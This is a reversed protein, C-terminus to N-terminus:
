KLIEQKDNVLELMEKLAESTGIIGEEDGLYQKIKIIHEFCSAADQYRQLHKYAEALNGLARISELKDNIKQACDLQRKLQSIAESYQQTLILVYALNGLAETEVKLIRYLSALEMSKTFAEKAPELKKQALYVLGLNNLSKAEQAHNQLSQALKMSQLHRKLSEDLLVQDYYWIGLLNEIVCILVADQIENALSHAQLWYEKAKEKQKRGFALRGKFRLTHFILHTDKALNSWKELRLTSADIDKWAGIMWQIELSNLLVEARQAYADEPLIDLLTQYLKLALTNDYARQAEAAAKQLWPIAEQHKSAKLYHMALSHSFEDLRGPFVSQIAEAVMQHLLKRNSVLLSQYAVDRTSIHKFFYGSLEFGKKSIILAQKELSSLSEEVQISADLNRELESLIEVLFEQGIVAAKQLLTKLAKPLGDLRSQILSNLSSPVPLDQWEKEPLTSVYNCWEELYFPNGAALKVVAEMSRESLDLHRTYLMMLQTIDDENLPKLSLEHWGRMRSLFQPPEFRPRYLLLWLSPLRSQSMRNVLHGLLEKSSDDMWQLDDLILVLPKGSKACLFMIAELTSDLAMLLHQLLEKGGQQLRADEVKIELLWSILAFSDELQEALEIDVEKQLAAFSTKLKHLKNQPEDELSIGFYKQLLRAFLHLPTQSVGDCSADLFEAQSSHNQLFEHALRSKGLGAEAKIGYLIPRPSPLAATYEKHEGQASIEKLAESLLALESGRGLFTGSFRNLSKSSASSIGKPSWCEVPNAIGKLEKFGLYEFDFVDEVLGKTYSNLMIGDVPANSEMRSALNVEPGYVTFDGERSQGVKGVSVIGTNIGVRMSLEVEQYQPLQKLKANYLKLQELMKLGARIARETDHESAQKAGFLAMIADGIYKDVFGGYFTVCRSFIKMLEDMRLHISEPDLQTSLDTFGKIDAFLITVERLEGERLQHKKKRSLNDEEM